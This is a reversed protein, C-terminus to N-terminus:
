VGPPEGEVGEAIDLVLQAEVEGAEAGDRRRGLHAFAPAVVAEAVILLEPPGQPGIVKGPPHVVFAPEAKVDVAGANGVVGPDGTTTCRCRRGSRSRGIGATPEHQQHCPKKTSSWSPSIRRGPAELSLQNAPRGGLPRTLTRANGPLCAPLPGAPDADDPPGSPQTPRFRVVPEPALQQRM